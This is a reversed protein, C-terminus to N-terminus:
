NQVYGVIIESPEENIILAQLKIINCRERFDKSLPSTKARLRFAFRYSLLQSTFHFRGEGEEM